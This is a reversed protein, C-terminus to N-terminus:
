GKFAGGRQLVSRWRSSFEHELRSPLFVNGNERYNDAFCGGAYSAYIGIEQCASRLKSCTILETRNMLHTLGHHVDGLKYILSRGGQGLLKSCPSIEGEASVAITSAGATCGFYPIQREKEEFKGIWLGARDQGKYWSYLNELQEIFISMEAASWIVGTAHGITFQNAGLAHLGLVDDFLRGANQPMITMKVQIWPQVKKLIELGKIARTFSGRGLADVRYSDHSAELGDISILVTIQHEAFYRAMEDTLLVGNSTMGFRISKGARAVQREAYETIQRIASFRLTPEGGFHTISLAKADGSYAILLDVAAKATSLPMNGSSPMNKEFCYKCALNCAGTLIIELQTVPPLNENLRRGGDHILRQIDDPPVELSALRVTLKKLDPASSLLEKEIETSIHTM